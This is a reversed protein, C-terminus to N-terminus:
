WVLRFARKYRRAHTLLLCFSVCELTHCCTVFRSDQTVHTVACRLNSSLTDLLCVILTKTM